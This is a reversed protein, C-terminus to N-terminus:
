RLWLCDYLPNLYLETGTSAFVKGTTKEKGISWIWLERRSNCFDPADDVFAERWLRSIDYFGTVPDTACSVVDVCEAMALKRAMSLNRMEPYLRKAEEDPDKKTM